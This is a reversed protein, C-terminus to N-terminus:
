KGERLKIRPVYLVTKKSADVREEVEGGEKIVEIMRRSGDMAYMAGNGSFINKPSLRENQSYLRAVSGVRESM